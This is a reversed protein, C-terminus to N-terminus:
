QMIKISHPNLLIQIEHINYCSLLHFEVRKEVIKM